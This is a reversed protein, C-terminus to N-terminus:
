SCGAKVIGNACWPSKEKSKKLYLEESAMWSFSRDGANHYLHYQITAYRTCVFRLGLLKLRREIDTDEGYYPETFDEDFGNIDMMKRRSVCFSCGNVGKKRRPTVLPFYLAEEKKRSRSFLVRMPGIKFNEREKILFETTAADLMVRRGFLCVEEEARHAYEKIFHRHLVCDGDIFVLFDGRSQAVAENLIGAKRFGVDDQTLHTLPVSCRRKFTDVVTAVTRSCGDEAVIVEFNRFSQRRISELVLRLFDARKYVAIILSIKM